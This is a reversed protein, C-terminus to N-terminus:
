ESLGKVIEEIRENDIKGFCYPCLGIKNLVGKYEGILKKYKGEQEELDEEMWVFNQLESQLEEEKKLESHMVELSVVLDQVQLLKEGEEEQVAISELDGVFSLLREKDNERAYCQELGEEVAEIKEQVQLFKEVSSLRQDMDVLENLLYLEDSAKEAEQYVKEAKEVEGEVELRKEVRAIKGDLLSLQGGLEELREGSVIGEEWSNCAETLRVVKKEIDPLDTYEELQLKKEELQKKFIETEKNASNVKSTFDSVWGDVEELKTIANIVKGAEGPPSTILFPADLQKQMNIESINLVERIVDPVEKGVGKFSAEGIRYEAKDLVKEGKKTKRIKKELSIVQDGIPSDVTLTAKTSGKEGAFNSFYNAGLPRNNVAWNLARLIATKGSRSIGIIVNVRPSFELVSEAYSQFNKIQLRKIM